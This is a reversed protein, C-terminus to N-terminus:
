HNLPTNFKDEVKSVGDSKTVEYAIDAGDYLEQDHTIVIM